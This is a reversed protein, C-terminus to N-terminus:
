VISRSTERKKSVQIPTRTDIALLKCQEFSRLYYFISQMEDSSIYLYM